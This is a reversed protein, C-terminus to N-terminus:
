FYKVDSESYVMAIETSNPIITNMEQEQRLEINLDIITIGLKMAATM